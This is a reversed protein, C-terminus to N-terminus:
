RVPSKKAAPITATGKMTRHSGARAPCAPRVTLVARGETETIGATVWRNGDYNATPEGTRSGGRAIVRPQAEENDVYVLVSGRPNEIDLAVSPSRDLADLGSITVPPASNCGGLGLSGLGIMCAATLIRAAIFRSCVLTM